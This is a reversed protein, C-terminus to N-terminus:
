FYMKNIIYWIFTPIKINEYINKDFFIKKQFLDITKNSAM